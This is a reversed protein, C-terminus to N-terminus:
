TAGGKAKAIAARAIEMDRLIAPNTIKDFSEFASLLGECAALLEPSAAILRLNEHSEPCTTETAILHGTFPQEDYDGSVVLLQRMAYRSTVLSWPGPTHESM